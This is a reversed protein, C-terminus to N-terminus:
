EQVNANNSKFEKEEIIWIDTNAPLNNAACPDATTRWTGAHHSGEHPTYLLEGYRSNVIRFGSSFSLLKWNSKGRPANIDAFEVRTTFIERKQPDSSLNSPGAHLYENRYRRNRIRFVNAEGSSEFIWDGADLQNFYAVDM